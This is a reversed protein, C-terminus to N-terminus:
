WLEPVPGRHREVPQLPWQDYIVKGISGQGSEVFAIIRDVRKLLGDLNQLTSQSARVVDEIQPSERTTM